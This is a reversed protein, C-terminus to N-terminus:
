IGHESYDIKEIFFNCPKLNLTIGANHLLSLITCVHSMSRHENRFIQYYQQPVNLCTAIEDSIIGWGNKM